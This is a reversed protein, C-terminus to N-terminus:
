AGNPPPMDCGASELLGHLICVEYWYLLVTDGHVFSEFKSSYVENSEKVKDLTACDGMGSQRYKQLAAVLKGKLSRHEDKLKAATALTYEPDPYAWLEEFAADNGGQM